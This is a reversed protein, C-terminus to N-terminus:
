IIQNWQTNNNEDVFGRSNSQEDAMDIDKELKKKFDRLRDQIDM